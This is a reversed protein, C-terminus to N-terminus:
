DSDAEQRAVLGVLQDGAPRLQVQARVGDGVPDALAAHPLNELRDVLHHAPFAGDFNQRAFFGRRLGDIAERAFDARLRQQVMGVQHAGVVGAVIAIDVVQDGLVHRARIQPLQHSPLAGQAHLLRRVHDELCGQPQFVGVLAAQDM